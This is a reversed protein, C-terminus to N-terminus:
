VMHEHRDGVDLGQEPSHWTPLVRLDLQCRQVAAEGVGVIHGADVSDGGDHPHGTFAGLQQADVAGVLGLGRLSGRVQADARGHEAFKGLDARQDGREYRAAVEVRRGEGLAEGVHDAQQVREV